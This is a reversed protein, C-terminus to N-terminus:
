YIIIFTVLYGELLIISNKSIIKMTGHLKVFFIITINFVLENKISFFGLCTLMMLKCLVYQKYIEIYITYVYLNIFIVNIFYYMIIRM